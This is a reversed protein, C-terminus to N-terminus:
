KIQPRPSGRGRPTMVQVTTAVSSSSRTPRDLLSAPWGPWTLMSTESSRRVFRWCEARLAELRPGELSVAYAHRFFHRFALLGRLLRLSEDSLVRPRIGEIDLSM